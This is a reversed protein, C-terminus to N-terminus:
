LNTSSVLKADEMIVDYRYGSGFDKNLFITGEFAAVAGVNIMEQTTITLDFKGDFESGDQIHIWNKGMIKENVKVVTGRVRIKKDAFSGPNEFLEALSTEGADHTIVTAKNKVPEKKGMTTPMQAPPQEDPPTTTIEEVLMLSEFTRNLEKSEFNPLEYGGKFYYTDGVNVERKPIAIWFEDRNEKVLLYTYTTTHLVDAVTIKHVGSENVKQRTETTQNCAFLTFVIGAVVIYFWNRTRM